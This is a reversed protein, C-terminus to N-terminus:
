LPRTKKIYLIRIIEELDQILADESTYNAKNAKNQTSIASPFSFNVAQLVLINKEMLTGSGM